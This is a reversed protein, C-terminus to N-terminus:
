FGIILFKILVDLQQLFHFDFVDRWFSLSSTEERAEVSYGELFEMMLKVVDLVEIYHRGKM